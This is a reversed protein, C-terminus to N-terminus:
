GWIKEGFTWKKNLLFNSVSAIAVATILSVEYSLGSEMFLYLSGLQIAAGGSSIGAFL